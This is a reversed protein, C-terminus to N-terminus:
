DSESFGKFVARIAARATSVRCTSVGLRRALSKNTLRVKKKNNRTTEECLQLLEEDPFMLLRLVAAAVRNRKFLLKQRTKTYLEDAIVVGLPDSYTPDELSEYLPAGDGNEIFLSANRTTVTTHDDIFVRPVRKYQYIRGMVVNMNTWIRRKAWSELSAGRDSNWTVVAVWTQVYGVSKLDDKSYYDSPLKNARKAAESEIFPELKKSLEEYICLKEEYESQQLRRAAEISPKTLVSFGM